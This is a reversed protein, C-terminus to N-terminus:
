NLRDDVIANKHPDGKKAPYYLADRKVTRYLANDTNSNSVSNPSKKLNDIRLRIRRGRNGLRDCTKVNLVCFSHVHLVFFSRLSSKENSPM